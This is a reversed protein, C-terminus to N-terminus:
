EATKVAGSSARTDAAACRRVTQLQSVDADAPRRRRLRDGDFHGHHSQLLVSHFFIAPVALGIGVMTVVLGHSLKEALFYATKGSNTPDGLIRFAGVM